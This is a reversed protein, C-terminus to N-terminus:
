ADAQPARKRRAVSKLFAIQDRSLGGTLWLTAAYAVLAVPAVLLAPFGGLLWAVAAMSGGSVIAASQWREFGLGLVLAMATNFGINLAHRVWNRSRAEARATNELLQEALRSGVYGAAGAILYRAM